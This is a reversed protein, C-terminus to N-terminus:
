ACHSRSRVVQQVNARSFGAPYKIATTLPKPIPIVDSCDILDHVNHGIVSMKEMAAQFRSAMYAQNNINAQWLCATRLDRAFNSDSQLRLEGHLPSLAEGPNSGSGPLLTGRLLTELFFQSDFTFPTSDL